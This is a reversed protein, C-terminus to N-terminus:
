FLFKTDTIEKGATDFFVTRDGTTGDLEVKYYTKGDKEIQEAEDIKYEKFQNAITATVPAPLSAKKIDKELKIVKGSADLWAEHDTGGIEFDVNFIEGKKEWDVDTANPYDASFANLVLSPVQSQPIDQACSVTSIGIMAIIVHVTKM